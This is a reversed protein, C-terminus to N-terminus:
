NNMVYRVLGHIVRHSSRFISIENSRFVILTLVPVSKLRFVLYKFPCNPIKCLHIMNYRAAFVYNRLPMNQPLNHKWDWQFRRIYGTISTPSFILESERFNILFRHGMIPRKM